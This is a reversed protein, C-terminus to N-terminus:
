MSEQVIKAGLIVRLIIGLDDCFRTQLWVPSLSKTERKKAVWISGVVRSFM